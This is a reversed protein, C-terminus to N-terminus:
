RDCNKCVRLGKKKPGIFWRWGPADYLGCFTKGESHNNDYRRHVIKSGLSYVYFFRKPATM